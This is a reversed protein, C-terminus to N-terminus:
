CGNRRTRGAVAAAATTIALTLYISGAVAFIGHGEHTDIAAGTVIPGVVSGAAYVIGFVANAQVLAAADFSDGILALGLAYIAGSAGGLLVLAGLFAAHSSVVAPIAACAAVCALACLLLPTTRGVRDSAMAIPIQLMLNGLAAATLAYAAMTEGLGKRLAYVQVLTTPIAECLGYVAGAIIALPATRVSTLRSPVEEVAVPPTALGPWLALVATGLVVLGGAVAFPWATHAGLEPQLASGLMIALMLTVGYVALDRARGSAPSTGNIWYEISRLYLGMAGGFLLRLATMAGYGTVISLAALAAAALVLLGLALTRISVRRHIQLHPIMLSGLIWGMAPVAANLGILGGSVGTEALRIALLPFTIAYGTGALLVSLNLPFRLAQSPAM